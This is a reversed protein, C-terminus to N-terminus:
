KIILLCKVSIPKSIKRIPAPSKIAKPFPIPFIGGDSPNTPPTSFSPKGMGMKKAQIAPNDSNKPPRSIARPNNVRGAANKQIQVIPVAANILCASSGHADLSFAKNNIVM